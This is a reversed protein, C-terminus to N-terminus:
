LLVQEQFLLIVFWLFFFFGALIPNIQCIGGLYIVSRTSYRDYLIGIILFLAASIIGHSIMTFISGQIGAVNMSFLALVAVNMHAISSYAVIKKLDTQYIAAFSAYLVSLVALSKALPLFYFTGEPFLPLLFRLFGYGGLKLLLSALIM